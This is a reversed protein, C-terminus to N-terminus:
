RIVIQGVVPLQENNILLTRYLSDNFVLYYANQYDETMYAFKIYALTGSGSKGNQKGLLTHGIILRGQFVRYVFFSGDSVKCMCDPAYVLPENANVDLFDGPVVEMPIVKQPDFEIVAQWGYVCSANEVKLEVVFYGLVKQNNEPETEELKQPNLMALVCGAISLCVCIVFLYSIGIDMKVKM